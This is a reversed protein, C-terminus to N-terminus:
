IMSYRPLHSGPPCVRHSRAGKLSSFSVLRRQKEDWLNLHVSGLSGLLTLPQVAQLEPTEEYAKQLYYNPIGPRAHHVHHYGINGSLWQLMKPLQYFSAGQLAAQWPNWESHRAWYVGEFQHQVYFLWVGFAAAFFLTSLQVLLYTRFGIALGAVTVIAALALDTYIVSHVDQPHAKKSPWRNRLLFYYFPGITFMIAPSRYLRYSLRRWPSAAQYEEVTLTTIDGFGRRDLDGASIHHGAHSCRWLRL